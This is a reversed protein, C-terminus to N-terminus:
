CLYGKEDYFKGAKPICCTKSEIQYWNTGLELGWDFQLLHIEGIM